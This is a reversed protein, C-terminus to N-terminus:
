NTKMLTSLYTVGYNISKSVVQQALSNNHVRFHLFIVIWANEQKGEIHINSPEYPNSM